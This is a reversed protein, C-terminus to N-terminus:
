LEAAKKGELKEAQKQAIRDKKTSSLVVKEAPIEEVECCEDSSDVRIQRM